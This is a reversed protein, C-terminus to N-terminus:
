EEYPKIELYEIEDSVVSVIQKGVFVIKFGPSLHFSKFDTIEQVSSNIMTKLNITNLEYVIVNRGSKLNINALWSM